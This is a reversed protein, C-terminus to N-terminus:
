FFVPVLHLAKYIYGAVKPYKVPKQGPTQKCCKQELGTMQLLHDTGAYERAKEQLPALRGGTKNM